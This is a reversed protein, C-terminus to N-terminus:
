LIFSKSIINFAHQWAKDEPLYGAFLSKGNVTISGTKYSGQPLHVTLYRFRAKPLIRKIRQRIEKTDAVPQQQQTVTEM